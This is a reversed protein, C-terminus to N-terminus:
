MLVLKRQFHSGGNNVYRNHNFICIIYVVPLHYVKGENDNEELEGDVITVLLDTSDIAFDELVDDSIQILYEMFTKSITGSKVNHDFVNQDECSIRTELGICKDSATFTLDFITFNMKLKMIYMVSFRLFANKNKFNDPFNLDSELTRKLMEIFALAQTSLQSGSNLNESILQTQESDDVRKTIINLILCLSQLFRRINRINGGNIKM